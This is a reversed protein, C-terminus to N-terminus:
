SPGGPASTRDFADAFESLDARALDIRAGGGPRTPIGEARWRRSAEERLHVPLEGRANTVRWWAVGGGAQAMVRGVQRPGTGVLAAIDGFSVLRGPPVCEVARLVDDLLALAGGPRGSRASSPGFSPGDPGQSGPGDPEDARM